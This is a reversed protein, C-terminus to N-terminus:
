QCVGYNHDDFLVYFHMCNQHVLYVYIFPLKDNSIDWIGEGVHSDYFMCTIYEQRSHYNRLGNCLKRHRVIHLVVGSHAFRTNAM